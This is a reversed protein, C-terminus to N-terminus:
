NTEEIVLDLEDTSNGEVELEEQKVVTLQTLDVFWYLKKNM